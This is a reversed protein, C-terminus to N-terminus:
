FKYLGAIGYIIELEYKNGNISIEKSKLLTYDEMFKYIKESYSSRDQRITVDFLFLQAKFNRDILLTALDFCKSNSNTELCTVTKM